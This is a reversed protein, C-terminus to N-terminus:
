LVGARAYATAALLKGVCIDTQSEQLTRGPHEQLEKFRSVVGATPNKEFFEINSGWGKALRAPDPKWSGLQSTDFREVCVDCLGDDFMVESRNGCDKCRYSLGSAHRGAFELPSPLYWVGDQLAQAAVYRAVEESFPPVVTLRGLEARIALASAVARMMQGVSLEQHNKFDPISGNMAQVLFHFHEWATWFTDNTAVAAGAMAKCLTTPPIEMHLERELTLKLAAYDWTLWEVGFRATFARMLALPSATRDELLGPLSPTAEPM